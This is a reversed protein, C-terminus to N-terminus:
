LAPTEPQRLFRDRDNLFERYIRFYETDEYAIPSVAPGDFSYITAGPCALLIPSHTAIVFQAHGDAAMQRLLKVFRIQRHPSLATEPEDLLYVGERVYRSSFFAMFSEGHSLSQLSRGGFYELLGPDHSAWEDIMRTMHDYTEASFFAGPKEGATWHVDLHRHLGDQYPNRDVRNLGTEAWIHISCRRSLARLLTSKGSGNEGVFFTIGSTLALHGTGRLVPLKFPYVTTDPYREPHLTLGTIHMTARFIAESGAREGPRHVQSARLCLGRPSVLRDGIAEHTLSAQM